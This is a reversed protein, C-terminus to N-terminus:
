TNFKVSTGTFKEPDPLSPKLRLIRQPQQLQSQAQLLNAQVQQESRVSTIDQRLTAIEQQLINNQARLGEIIDNFENSIASRLQDLHEQEMTLCLCYTPTLFLYLYSALFIECYSSALFTSLFPFPFLSIRLFPSKRGRGASFAFLV